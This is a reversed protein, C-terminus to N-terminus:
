VRMFNDLYLRQDHSDARWRIYPRGNKAYKIEQWRGYINITLARTYRSDCYRAYSGDNSIEILVAHMIDLNYVGHPTFGHKYNKM